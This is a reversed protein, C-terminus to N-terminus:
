HINKSQLKLEDPLEKSWPMYKLLTATDKKDLNCIVDMLYILYKEVNLDNAKATEAISYIIASARAGKPTNCLLWNKRGLVFPKIAREAGNNDIELSGDTLFTRFGPLLKRSYELAQGLPSRPLANKLEIDVYKIFEEIIPASKELRIEYRKKYFDDNGQYKEKLEKEIKYLHECFNFGIVARSNLLAEGELKSVIDFYKRRIHALCYIHKVNEVSNYGQYGDTQLM